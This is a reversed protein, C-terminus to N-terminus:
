KATLNKLTGAVSWSVRLVPTGGGIRIPNGNLEAAIYLPAYAGLATLQYRIERDLGNFCSRLRGVRIWCPLEM